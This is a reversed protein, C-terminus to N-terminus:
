PVFTMRTLGKIDFWLKETCQKDLKQLLVERKKNRMRSRKLVVFQEGQHKLFEMRHVENIIVIDGPNPTYEKPFFTQPVNSEELCMNKVLTDMLVDTSYYKELEDFVDDKVDKDCRYIQCIVPRVPYIQCAKEDQTTDLFPCLLDIVADGSQTGETHHQPQIHHKKVYDHITKKEQETLFLHSTCCNGCRSCAGNKTFDTGKPYTKEIDSHINLGYDPENEKKRM